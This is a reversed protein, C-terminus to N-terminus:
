YESIINYLAPTMEVNLQGLKAKMPAFFLPYTGNSSVYKQSVAIVAHYDAAPVAKINKSM